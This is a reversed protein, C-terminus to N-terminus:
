PRLAQTPPEGPPPPTEPRRVTDSMRLWLAVTIWSSVLSSGGASLFPTTLGTLPILRTVGGLVVFVQFALLFAFGASAMKIFPDRTALATRLGREVLLFLLVVVAMLGTLGFKEGISVLIYDSDAAFITAARGHAFGTGTLGGDALAFLGEVVQRSSDAGHYLEPEFADLWITVRQRVHWFLWWSVYAAGLFLALGIGVWSKRGTAVYLMALFLAFLLLSTGLDRTGVLLLISLAWAAAMPGMDRLRPLSFVKVPGVMVQKAALSLVDRKLTLYSALFLVLTIEAFESPQVTVGGWGIWRRAGYIEIGVFPVVPVAILLITAVALLYPFRQLRRPERVLVLVALAAAAGLVTWLLQRGAVGTWDEEGGHLGRIVALGIGNLAVALPLLLPDAWPALLRLAVHLAIAVGALTAAQAAFWAPLSGSLELGALALCCLGVGLAMLLLLLETARGTDPSPRTRADVM